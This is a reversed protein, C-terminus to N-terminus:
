LQGDPRNLSDEVHSGEGNEESDGQEMESGFAGDYVSVDLEENIAASRSDLNSSGFRDFNAVSRRTTRKALETHPVPYFGKASIRVGSRNSTRLGANCLSQLLEFTM